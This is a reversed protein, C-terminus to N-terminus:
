DSYVHTSETEPAPSAMQDSTLSVKFRSDGAKVGKTVVRWVAKAKPALSKLPAFKVIKAPTFHDKVATRLKTHQPPDMLNIMPTVPQVKSLLHSSTTGKTATYHKTDMSAAWIDEFKALAWADYEEIYHVPDEARLKKYVPTPDRMVEESFPNYEVPM